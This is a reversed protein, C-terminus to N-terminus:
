KLSLLYATLAEFDAPPLSKFSKMPMALKKGEKDAAAKADTLYAKIHAEGKKGVGDLPFKKNGVGAISHCMSCKNDAFVKKGAAHDQAFAPAALMLLVACLFMQTVLRM